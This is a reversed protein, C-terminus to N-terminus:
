RYGVIEFEAVLGISSRFAFLYLPLSPKPKTRYECWINLVFAHEKVESIALANM